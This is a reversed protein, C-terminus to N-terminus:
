KSYRVAGVTKYVILSVFFRLFVTKDSLCIGSSQWIQEPVPSFSHMPDECLYESVLKNKVGAGWDRYSCVYVDVCFTHVSEQM